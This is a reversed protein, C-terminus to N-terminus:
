NNIPMLGGRLLQGKVAVLGRARQDLPRLNSAPLCIVAFGLPLGGGALRQFDSPLSTNPLDWPIQVMICDHADVAFSRPPPGM